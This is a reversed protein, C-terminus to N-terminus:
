FLCIIFYYNNNKLNMKININEIEEELDIKYLQNLNNYYELYNSYDIDLQKKIEKDIELLFFNEFITKEIDTIRKIENDKFYEEKQGIILNIIKNLIEQSFLYMNKNMEFIHIENENENLFDEFKIKKYDILELSCPTKLIKSFLNNNQKLIKEIIKKRDIRNTM